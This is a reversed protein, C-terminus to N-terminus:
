TRFVLVYIDYLVHAYVAHALSRYWYILAFAVGALARYVFVSLAFSEGHPGLHHALSFLLASGAVALPIALRPSMGSRLLLAAAGSLIGLRFVLEEHVGAGLSVVLSEGTSGLSFTSLKDGLGLDIALRGEFGLLHQMLALIAAGLTLAYIASELLLPAVVDASFTRRRQTALVWGTFAVACILHVLLYRDRDHGVLAFVTRTVFDVGNITPSFMVGIEYILFVPVVLLLSAALDGHGFVGARQGAAPRRRGM